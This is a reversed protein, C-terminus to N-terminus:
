KIWLQLILLYMDEKLSNMQFLTISYCSNLYVLFANAERDYLSGTLIYNTTHTLAEFRCYYWQCIPGQVPHPLLIYFLKLILIKFWFLDIIIKFWFKRWDNKMLITHFLILMFSTELTNILMHQRWHWIRLFICSYIFIM